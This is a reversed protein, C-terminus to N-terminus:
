LTTEFSKKIHPVPPSQYHASSPPSSEKRKRQGHEPSEYDHNDFSLEGEETTESEYAQNHSEQENLPKSWGSKEHLVEGAEPELDVGNVMSFTKKSANNDTKRRKLMPSYGGKPAENHSFNSEKTEDKRGKESTMSHEVQIESGRHWHNNRDVSVLKMERSTHNSHGENQFGNHANLSSTHSHDSASRFYNNKTAAATHPIGKPVTPEDSPGHLKGSSRHACASTGETEIANVNFSAAQNQEYLELM